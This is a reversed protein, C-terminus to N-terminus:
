YRTGRTGCQGTRPQPRQAFHPPYLTPLEILRSFPSRSEHWSQTTLPTRAAIHRCGDDFARVGGPVSRTVPIGGASEWGFRVSPCRGGWTARSNRADRSAHRALARSLCCRSRAARTLIRSRSALRGIPFFPDQCRFASCVGRRRLCCRGALRLPRVIRGPLQEAHGRGTVPMREQDNLQRQLHIQTGSEAADADLAM